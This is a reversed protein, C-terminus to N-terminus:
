AFSYNLKSSFLFYSLIASFFLSPTILHHTTHLLPINIFRNKFFSFAKIQLMQWNRHYSYEWWPRIWAVLLKDVAECFEQM